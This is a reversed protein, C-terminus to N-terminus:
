KHRSLENMLLSLLITYVASFIVTYIENTLRVIPFDIPGFAGGLTSPGFHIIGVIVTNLLIFYLGIFISGVILYGWLNKPFRFFGLVFDIAYMLLGLVIGSVIMSFVGDEFSLGNVTSVVTIMVMIEIAITYILKM